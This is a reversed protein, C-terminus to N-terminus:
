RTGFRRNKKITKIFLRQGGGRGRKIFTRVLKLRREPPKRRNETTKRGTKLRGVSCFLLPVFKKIVPNSGGEGPKYCSYFFCVNEKRIADRLKYTHINALFLSISTKTKQKKGWCYNQCVLKWPRLSIFCFFHYNKHLIYTHLALVLM